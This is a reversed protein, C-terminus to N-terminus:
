RRAIVRRKEWFNAISDAITDQVYSDFYPPPVEITGAAPQVEDNLSFEPEEPPSDHSPVGSDLLHEALTQTSHSDAATDSPEPWPGSSPTGSAAPSGHGSFITPTSYLIIM